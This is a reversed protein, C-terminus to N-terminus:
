LKAKESTKDMDFLIDSVRKKNKRINVMNKQDEFVDLLLNNEITIADINAQNEVIFYCWVAQLDESIEKGIYEMPIESGDVKMKYHSLIYNNMHMEADEREYKTCLKLSDEGMLRIGDELDDLFLHMTIQLSEEETNYNVITKSLHFDHATGISVITSFALLYTFIFKM